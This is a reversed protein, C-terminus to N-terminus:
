YKKQSAGVPLNQFCRIANVRQGFLIIYKGIVCFLTMKNVQTDIDEEGITCLM